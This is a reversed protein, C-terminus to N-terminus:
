LHQTRKLVNQSFRTTLESLETNLRRFTERDEGVLLAGSRVFGDYTTKLLMRDEPSLKSQDTNDWVYKVRKWLEPNLSITTSYDSLKPSIRMSIDMMEDDTMASSLPGFINLVQSLAKGSNELAVITNNFDPTAPNACINDVDQLGLRIGEDIAPEYDTVKIKSFPVTGHLTDFTGLLPNSTQAQTM